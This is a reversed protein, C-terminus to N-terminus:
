FSIRLGLQIQRPDSANTARGFAALPATGTGFVNNPFQLNTRNLVNFSEAILEMQIAERPTFQRSIRLDLVASNFGRGTNRGVGAPRAPTTQITQGGTVVNFPYPSGYMFIPSFRWGALSLQGSATLRHRQDNDSLARDNRINFNDQPSSFFANGANDITKSYTYSLRMMFRTSRRHQVSLTLGDYYADGQGSYQTVNGFSPNPRGLNVPDQTATVTPVNLNRQMIIHLARVHLYGASASLSPKLEREVQINGQITSANKINPDITALNFLVGTPLAALKNPFEPSGAQARQLSVTKYEVGAGRLANAVARLPIRDFYQGFSARVVTKSDGPTWAIGLRPSFNRTQTEIGAALWSVDHRLGANITLDRRLKWEDQLFWGLNPNTQFWDVRGFAQTYTTYNGAFFNPLSSFTYSGFFSGPFVINVRNYLFDLGAKVFHANSQLSYNNVIELLDIDRATPSSTSAGFNAV